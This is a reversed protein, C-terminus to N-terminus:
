RNRYDMLEDLARQRAESPEERELMRIENRLEEDSIRDSITRDRLEQRRGALDGEMGRELGRLEKYQKDFEADQDSISPFGRKDALWENMQFPDPILKRLKGFWSDDMMSKYDEPLNEYEPQYDRFRKDEEQSLGEMIMHKLVETDDIPEGEAAYLYGGDKGGKPVSVPYTESYPGPGIISGRGGTTSAQGMPVSSVGWGGGQPNRWNWNREAQAGAARPNLVDRGVAGGGQMGRGGGGSLFAQQQMQRPTPRPPAGINGRGGRSPQGLNPDFQPQPRYGGIDGGFAMMQPPQEVSQMLLDKATDLIVVAMQVDGGARGVVAEALAVSDQEIDPAAGEPAGQPPGMPPGGMPPGPPGGMPPGQNAMMDPPPGGMPPGPPPPPGGMPPGPPPGPPGMPVDPRGGAMMINTLDEIGPM